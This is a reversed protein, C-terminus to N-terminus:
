ESITPVSAERFNPTLLMQAHPYYPPPASKAPRPQAMYRQLSVRSKINILRSYKKFTCFTVWPGFAACFTTQNVCLSFCRGLPLFVSSMSSSSSLQYMRRVMVTAVKTGGSSKAVRRLACTYPGVVRSLQSFTLAVVYQAYVCTCVPVYLWVWLVHADYGSQVFMAYAHNTYTHTCTCTHTCTHTHM